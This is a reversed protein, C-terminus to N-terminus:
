ESKGVWADEGRLIYFDGAWKALWEALFDEQFSKSDFDKQWDELNTLDMIGIFRWPSKVEVPRSDPDNGDGKVGGAMKALTFGKCAPLNIMFPGKFEECYKIYEEDTVTDKLNYLIIEKAM